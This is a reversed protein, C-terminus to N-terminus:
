RAWICSPARHDSLRDTSRSARSARPDAGRVHGAYGHGARGPHGLRAIRRRFFPRRHGGDPRQPRRGVAVSQANRLGPRLLSRNAPRGLRHHGPDFVQRDPGPVRSLPHRDGGADRGGAALAPQAAALRRLRLGPLDSLRVVGGLDVLVSPQLGGRARSGLGPASASQGAARGLRLIGADISIGALGAVVGLAIMGLLTALHLPYVRALRNWLFSGYRFREEGLATLYVHCLIFGSLVFFLEVGLYGKSLWCRPSPRVDLKPWYHYLVVWLAAFFRLSTLPRINAADQM